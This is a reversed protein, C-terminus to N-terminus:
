YILENSLSITITDELTSPDQRVTPPESISTLTYERVRMGSESVALFSSSIIRLWSEFWIPIRPDRDICSLTGPLRIPIISLMCNRVVMIGQATCPGGSILDM